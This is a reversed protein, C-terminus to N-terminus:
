PHFLYPLTLNKEDKTHFHLAHTHALGFSGIRCPLSETIITLHREMTSPSATHKGAAAPPPLHHM